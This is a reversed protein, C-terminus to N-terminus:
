VTSTIFIETLGLYSVDNSFDQTPSRLNQNDVHDSVRLQFYVMEFRLDEFM